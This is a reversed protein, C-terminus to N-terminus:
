DSDVSDDPAPPPPLAAEEDRLNQGERAISDYISALLGVLPFKGGLPSQGLRKLLAHAAFPESTTADSSPACEGQPRWFHQLCADIPPAHSGAEAVPPMSHARAIGRTAIARAEQLRELLKQGDLGRLTFALLPDGALREALLAAVCVVHKCSVTPTCTGCTCTCRVESMSQPVLSLGLSQFPSEVQPPLEGALLKASYLAERAMIQVVRDWDSPSFVDTDIRVQYPRPERGQVAAEIGHPTIILSATQGQRGYDLAEEFLDPNGSGCLLETWPAAPWPLGDLNEKRRFRIGHKLRRPGEQRRQSRFNPAFAGTQLPSQLSRMSTSTSTTNIIEPEDSVFGDNALAAETKERLEDPTVCDNPQM